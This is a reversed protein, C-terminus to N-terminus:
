GLIQTEILIRAIPADRAHLLPYYPSCTRRFSGDVCVVPSPLCLAIRLGEAVEHVQAATLSGLHGELKSRDQTAVQHCLAVSEQTL